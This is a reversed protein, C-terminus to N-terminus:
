FSPKWLKGSNSKKSFHVISASINVRPASYAILVFKGACQDQTPSPLGIQVLQHCEKSLTAM